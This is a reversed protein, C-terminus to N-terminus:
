LIKSEYRGKEAPYFTIIRTGQGTKRYAVCLSLTKSFEGIAIYVPEESKDVVLPNQVISQIHKKTIGLKKIKPLTLKKEAHLTYSYKDTLGKSM